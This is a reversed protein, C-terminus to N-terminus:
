RSERSSLDCTNLFQAKSTESLKSAIPPIPFVVREVKDNWMIEVECMQKKMTKALDSEDADGVLEIVDDGSQKEAELALKVKIKYFNTMAAEVVQSFETSMLYPDDKSITLDMMSRTLIPRAKRKNEQYKFIAYKKERLDNEVEDFLAMEIKSCIMREIKSDHRGEVLAALLCIAKFTCDHKQETKIKMPTTTMLQKCVEIAKKDVCVIQNQPCPGQVCDIVFDLVASLLAYQSFGIARVIDRRPALDEMLDNAAGIVDYNRRNFPQERLCDQAVRIHGECLSQLFKFTTIASRVAPNVTYEASTSVDSSNQRQQMKRTWTAAESITDHMNKFFQGDSDEADNSQMYHLFSNQCGRHGGSLLRAGLDLAKEFLPGKGPSKLLRYVLQMLDFGNLEDQREVYKANDCDGADDLYLIFLDLIRFCVTGDDGAEGRSNKYDIHAIMRGIIDKWTIKTRRRETTGTDSQGFTALKAINKLGGQINSLGSLRRKKGEHASDVSSHFNKVYQPEVPDTIEKAARFISIVKMKEKNVYDVFEECETVEYIFDIYVNQMELDNKLGMSMRKHKLLGMTGLELGKSAGDQVANLGATIGGIAGDTVGKLFGIGMAAASRNEEPFPEDVQEVVMESECTMMGSIRLGQITYGKLATYLEWVRQNWEVESANGPFVEPLFSMPGTKVSEVSTANHLSSFEALPPLTIVNCRNFFKSLVLKKRSSFDGDIVRSPRVNILKAPRSDTGNLLLLEKQTELSAQPEAELLVLIRHSIIMTSDWFYFIEDNLKVAKKPATGNVGSGCNIINRAIQHALLSVLEHESISGSSVVIIARVLELVSECCVFAALGVNEDGFLGAYLLCLIDYISGMIKSDNVVDEDFSIEDLYVATFAYCYADLLAVYLELREDRKSEVEINHANIVLILSSIRKVLVRPPLAFRVSDSNPSNEDCCASLLNLISTYRAVSEVSSTQDVTFAELQGLLENCIIDQNRMITVSPHSTPCLQEEFFDLALIQHEADCLLQSFLHFISEPTSSVHEYSGRYIQYVLRLIYKRLYLKDISEMIAPVFKAFAPRMKACVMDHLLVISRVVIEHMSCEHAILMNDIPSWSLEFSTDKRPEGLDWNLVRLLINQLNLSFLLSQKAPESNSASFEDEAEKGRSMSNFLFKRFNILLNAADRFKIPDVPGIGWTRPREFLFTLDFICKNLRQFSEMPPDLRDSSILFAQRASDTLAKAPEHEELLVTLVKQFLEEDEYMMLDVFITDSYPLGSLKDMNLSPERLIELVHYIVKSM